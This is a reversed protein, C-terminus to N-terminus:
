GILMGVCGIVLLLDFSGLDSTLLAGRLASCAAHKVAECCCCLHPLLMRLPLHWIILQFGGPNLVNSFFGCPKKIWTM